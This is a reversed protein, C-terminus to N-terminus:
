KKLEVIRQFSTSEVDGVDVSIVEIYIDDASGGKGIAETMFVELYMAVNLDTTKGNIKQESCNVGAASLVRRSPPTPNGPVLPNCRPRVTEQRSTGLVSFAKLFRLKRDREAQSEEVADPDDLPIFDKTPDFVGVAASEIANALQIETLYIDYRTKASVLEAPLHAVINANVTADDGASLDIEPPLSPDSAYAPNPAMVGGLYNTKLYPTKDWNGDGFRQCDGSAFCNDRPLAMTDTRPNDPTTEDAAQRTCSENVISGTKIGSIVNPAPTYQKNSYEGGYNGNFIDFRVNLSIDNIGVAKGPRTTVGIEPFCGSVFDYAGLMCRIVDAQGKELDCAGKDQFNTLDLFGFNGPEWAANTDAGSVIKVMQGVKLEESPLCFMLPTIDCAYLTNSATARAAVGAPLKEGGRVAAFAAGFTFDVDHNTVVVEVFKADADGTALDSAAIRDDEPLTRLFRLEATPGGAGGLINSNAAGDRKGFSQRDTIEGAETLARSMAGVNGDLEGAAALAVNDAYSQLETQTIAVRGIDFSLAAMGLFVALCVAFFVLITGEQAKRYRAILSRGNM